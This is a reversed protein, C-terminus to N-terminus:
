GGMGRLRALRAQPQNLLTLEIEEHEKVTQYDVTRGAGVTGGHSLAALALAAGIWLRLLRPVGVFSSRTNAKASTLRQWWLTIVTISEIM